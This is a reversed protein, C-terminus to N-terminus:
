FPIDDSLSPGSDQQQEDDDVVHLSLDPSSETRKDENRFLVVRMKVDNIEVVGGYYAKGSSKANKKWLGGVRRLGSSQQKETM